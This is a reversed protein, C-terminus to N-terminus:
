KKSEETKITSNKQKAQEVKIREASRLIEESANKTNLIAPMDSSNNQEDCLFPKGFGGILYLVM